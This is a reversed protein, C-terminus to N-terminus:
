FLLLILLFLFFFLLLLQRQKMKNTYVLFRTVLWRFDVIKVSNWRYLTMACHSRIYTRRSTYIFLWRSYLAAGPIVMKTLRLCMSLHPEGVSKWGFRWYQKGKIERDFKRFEVAESPEPRLHHNGLLSPPTWIRGRAEFVNETQLSAERSQVFLSGPFTSDKWIKTKEDYVISPISSFINTKKNMRSATTFTFWVTSHQNWEKLVFFLIFTRNRAWILGSFPWLQMYRDDYIEITIHNRQHIFIHGNEKSQQWM